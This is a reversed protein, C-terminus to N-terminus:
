LLTVERYPALLAAAGSRTVAQESVDGRYTYLHAVVQKIAQKFVPPVAAANGYGASFRIEIGNLPRLPAPPTDRFAIRGGLVDVHYTDTAIEVAAGVAPHLYLGEVAAVPALPLKLPPMVEVAVGQQVGDWWAARSAVPWRDLFLSIERTVFCKGAHTECVLRAAAILAALAGDESSGSIRLHAKIEDVSVPEDAPAATEQLRYDGPHLIYQTETM